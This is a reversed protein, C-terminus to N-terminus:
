SLACGVYVDGCKWLVPKQVLVGDVFHKPETRLATRLETSVDSSDSADLYTRSTSRDRFYLCHTINTLCTLTHLTRDHYKNPRLMYGVFCPITM